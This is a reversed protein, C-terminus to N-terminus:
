FILLISGVEEVREDLFSVGSACLNKVENDLRNLQAVLV